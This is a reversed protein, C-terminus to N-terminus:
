IKASSENERDARGSYLGEQRGSLAEQFYRYVDYPADVDSLYDNKPFTGNKNTVMQGTDIAITGTSFIKGVLGVNVNASRIETFYLSRFDTGILGSKMIVRKNTITYQKIFNYIFSLVAMLVAGVGIVTGIMAGSAAKQTNSSAYQVTEQSFFFIAVLVAIM